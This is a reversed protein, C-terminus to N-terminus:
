IIGVPVNPRNDSKLTNLLYASSAAPFGIKIGIANPIGNASKTTLFFLLKECSCSVLNQDELM